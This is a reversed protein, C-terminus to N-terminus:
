KPEGKTKRYNELFLSVMKGTLCDVAANRVLAEPISSLFEFGNDESSIDLDDTNLCNRLQLPTIQSSQMYKGIEELPVFNLDNRIYSNTLNLLYTRANEVQDPDGFIIECYHLFGGKPDELDVGVRSIARQIQRVQTLYLLFEFSCSNTINTGKLFANEVHRLVMRLHDFSLILGPRFVQYSVGYQEAFHNQLTLFNDFTSGVNQNGSSGLAGDPLKKRPPLARKVESVWFSTKESVLTLKQQQDDNTM